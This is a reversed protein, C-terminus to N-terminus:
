TPITAVPREVSSLINWLGGLVRDAAAPAAATLAADSSIVRELEEAHDVDLTRHLEFYRGGKEGPDIGYHQSLGEMKKAAVAPTQAELAWVVAAGLGQGALQDGAALLDRTAANPATAKLAARDVGITEAFDAWMDIHTAEETAHEALQARDPATIAARNLWAPIAEVVFAYQGAYDRLEDLSLDGAVWRQYFSHALLDRRRATAKLEDLSM